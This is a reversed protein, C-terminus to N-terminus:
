SSSSRLAVGYGDINSAPAFCFLTTVAAAIGGFFLMVVIRNGIQSATETTLVLRNKPFTEAM